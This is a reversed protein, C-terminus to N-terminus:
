RAAVLHAGTDGTEKGLGAGFPYQPVTAWSNFAGRVGLNPLRGWGFWHESWLGLLTFGGMKVEPADRKSGLMGCERGSGVVVRGLAM